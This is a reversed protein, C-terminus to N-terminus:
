QPRCVLDIIEASHLGTARSRVSGAHLGFLRRGDTLLRGYTERLVAVKMRRGGAYYRDALHGIAYTAAFSFAGGTGAGAALGGWGGTLQDTLRRGIQAVVGAALGVGAAALFDRIHGRDLRYGYHKGIRYIMRVQLPVIAVIGIGGPLLDIAGNLISYQLVLRGIGAADVPELLPPPPEGASATEPPPPVLETLSGNDGSNPAIVPQNSDNASM